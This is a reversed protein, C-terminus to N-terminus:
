LRDSISKIESAIENLAGKLTIRDIESYSEPADKGTFYMRFWHADKDFYERSVSSWRIWKSLGHVLQKMNLKPLIEELDLITEGPKVEEGEEIDLLKKEEERIRSESFGFFTMEFLCLAIIEEPAYALLTRADIKMGLWSAWPTLSLGFDNEDGEKKGSVNNYFLGKEFSDEIKEIRITIDSEEAELTLLSNYVTEYGELSKRQSPYAQVLELAVESWETKKLLEKLIM